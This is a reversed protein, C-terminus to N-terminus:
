VLSIELKQTQTQNEENIKDASKTKINIFMVKKIIKLRGVFDNNDNQFANNTSIVYIKNNEDIIEIKNYGERMLIKFRDRFISEITNDSLNIIIVKKNFSIKRVYTLIPKESVRNQSIISNENSSKEESKKTSQSLNNEEERISSNEDKFQIDKKKKQNINYYNLLIDVFKKLNEPIEKKTYKEIKDNIVNDEDINILFFFKTETNYIMNVDNNKEKNKGINKNIIGIIENNFEYYCLDYHSSEHLYTIYPEYVGLSEKIVYNKINEYEIEPIYDVILTNLKTKLKEKKEKEKEKKEEKIEEKEEKYIKLMEPTIYRPFKIDHFFYHYVIQNIGPRQKPDKTLIQKILNSATESLESDDLKEPQFEFISKQIEDINTGYILLKGTLLQYMIIGVSWIDVQFSYGKKEFIEPAMYNYTGCITFRKEKVQNLHAIIGFDGIKLENKDDLLLNNPKLDRHIIKNQHLCKLGQLLQFIFCKVEIEKLRGGRKQLYDALSKNKCLELIIYVNDDDEFYDKVKVVKPNNKFQNQIKIEDLLSKRNNGVKEKKIIKGAYFNMDKEDIARFQFCEGFAGSGLKIDEYKIYKMNQNLGKNESKNYYFKFDKYHDMLLNKFNILEFINKAISKAKTKAKTKRILLEFKKNKYINISKYRNNVRNNSKFFNCKLYDGLKTFKKESNQKKM